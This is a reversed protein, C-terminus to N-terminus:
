KKWRGKSRRGEKKKPLAGRSQCVTHRIYSYKKLLRRTRRPNRPGHLGKQEGLIRVFRSLVRPSLFLGRTKDRPLMQVSMRPLRTTVVVVVVVVVVPWNGPQFSYECHGM